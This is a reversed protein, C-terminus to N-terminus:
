AVEPLRELRAIQRGARDFSEHLQDIVTCYALLMGVDTESAKQRNAEALMARYADRVARLAPLDSM